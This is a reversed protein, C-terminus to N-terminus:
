SALQATLAAIKLQILLKMTEPAFNKRPLPRKDCFFHWYIRITRRCLHSRSEVQLFPMGQLCYESLKKLELHFCDLCLVAPALTHNQYTDCGCYTCQRPGNYRRRSECCSSCLNHAVLQRNRRCGTCFALKLARNSRPM